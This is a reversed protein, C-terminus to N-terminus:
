ETLRTLILRYRVVVVVFIFLIIIFYFYFDENRFSLSQLTDFRPMKILNYTLICYIYNLHCIIYKCKFLTIHVLIYYTACSIFM